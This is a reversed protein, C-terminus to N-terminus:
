ENIVGIVNFVLLGGFVILSLRLFTKMQENQEQYYANLTDKSTAAAQKSATLSDQLSDFSLLAGCSGCGFGSENTPKPKNTHNM